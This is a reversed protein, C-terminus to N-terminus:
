PRMNTRKEAAHSDARISTHGQHADNRFRKKLTQMAWDSWLLAMTPSTRSLRLNSIYPMVAFKLCSLFSHASMKRMKVQLKTFNSQILLSVHMSHHVELDVSTEKELKSSKCRIVQRRQVWLIHILANMDHEGMYRCEHQWHMAAGRRLNADSLQRTMAQHLAVCMPNARSLVVAMMVKAVAVFM